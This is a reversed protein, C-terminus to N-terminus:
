EPLGHHQSEEGRVGAVSDRPSLRPGIEQRAGAVLLEESEVSQKACVRSVAGLAEVADGTASDAASESSSAKQGGDANLVTLAVRGM